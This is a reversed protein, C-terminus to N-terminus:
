DFVVGFNLVLHSPRKVHFDERKLASWVGGLHSGFVGLHSGLRNWSAELGELGAVFEIETTTM